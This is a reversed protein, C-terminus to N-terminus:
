PCFVISSYLLIFPRLSQKGESNTFSKLQEVGTRPHVQEGVGEIILVGILQVALVMKTPLCEPDALLVCFITGPM